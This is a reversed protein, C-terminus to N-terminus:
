DGVPVAVVDPAPRNSPLALALVGALVTAVAIVQFATELGVADSLFGIFLSALAGMGFITGLIAGSAFGKGSPLLEQALVVILSHSGGSLGGALMALLFSIAREEVIPLLFFAPAAVVLSGMVVLRRDVRDALGGFYVGSIGAAIWFSSTIAGFESPSWGKEEFLVPIFAVSGPTALSRLAVLLLLLGGTKLPLNMDRFRTKEASKPKLPHTVQYARLNPLTTAMFYVIPIVFPAILLVIIVGGVNQNLLFGSPTINDSFVADLGGSSVAGLLSGAVFPGIALGLQGMLFFWSMSTAVRSTDSEAAHLAGSPHFAGSGLAALVYPVFMLWFNHTIAVLIVALTFMGVTWAVGGAGLWRGGNRDVRLGFFPQSVAGAMQQAGIALGYQVNTISLGASILFTLIIPGMSMFTDNIMHGLAVAWFLRKRPMNM